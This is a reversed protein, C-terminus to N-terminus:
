TSSSWHVNYLSNSEDMCAERPTRTASERWAQSHCLIEKVALSACAVDEAAWVAGFSGMGLPRLVRCTTEGIRVQPPPARLSM